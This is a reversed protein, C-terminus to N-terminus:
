HSSQAPVAAEKLKLVFSQFSKLALPMVTSRRMTHMTNTLNQAHGFAFAVSFAKIM